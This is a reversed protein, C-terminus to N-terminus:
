KGPYNISQIVKEVMEALKKPLPTYHLTSTMKEAHNLEWELFEALKKGKEADKQEQRVILWTLGVIPYADKGEQDVLSIRYDSKLRKVANFAAASTSRMSPKIFKGSRNKLHAMPLDHELAYAIEVYGISYPIAMIQKIVESSGKAGVGLPWAVTTGTGITRKWESNVKSLYDTFISTTGSGDARHLVVIPKDVHKLEPNLKVLRRDNWHTISGLYIGAIIEPTLRVVSSIGPTNYTLAVAGMVTPIHILKGPANTLEQDTLFKDSACFDVSEDMIKQIGGGSGVAEYSFSVSPDVSAYDKFWKTYLPYPFTAGAGKLAVEAFAQGTTAAVLLAMAVIWKGFKQYM